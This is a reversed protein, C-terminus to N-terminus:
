MYLKLLGQPFHQPNQQERNGTVASAIRAWVAIIVVLVQLQFKLFELSM